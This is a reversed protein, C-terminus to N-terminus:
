EDNSSHVIKTKINALANTLYKREISQADRPNTSVLYYVEEEPFTYGREILESYDEKRTLRFTGLGIKNILVLCAEELTKVTKLKGKLNINLLIKRLRKEKDAM